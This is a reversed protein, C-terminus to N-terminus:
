KQSRGPSRLRIRATCERTVTDVSECRWRMGPRHAAGLTLLWGQGSFPFAIIAHRQRLIAAQISQCCSFHM